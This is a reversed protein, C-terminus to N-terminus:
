TKLAPAHGRYAGFGSTEESGGAARRLRWVSVRLNWAGAAHRLRWVSAGLNWAIAGAAHRLRWM